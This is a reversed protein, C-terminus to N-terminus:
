QPKRLEIVAEYLQTSQRAKGVRVESRIISNGVRTERPVEIGKLVLGGAEAIEGLYQDTPLHIGQLISNGIVILATGGPKLAYRMAEVLRHCDNFYTAAYNAWGNGGYVGKAANLGRLEELQQPLRSRPLEFCLDVPELDRVTQWYTGFNARELTRFDETSDALGLWYLHPRTNRNYHYNNLYPPSTIIVDVCEPELHSRVAFFSDHVVRARATSTPRAERFWRIDSVIEQLKRLLEGGVDYDEIEQRGASARRGLSPEYSYNSFAVMRSAFALRFVDRVAEDDITEVFDCFILVKRLVCPSYFPSRTAFRKPPQSQPTYSGTVREYYFDSFSRSHNELSKDCITHAQTKVRSALVAYPNIEFGIAEHGQLLAEVLTTGVGCFPDLVTGAYELRDSLARAVFSSGFGAIWPVWRHVPLTKNGAFSPDSFGTGNRPAHRGDDSEFLSLQLGMPHM